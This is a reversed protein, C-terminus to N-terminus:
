CRANVVRAPSTQRSFVEVGIRVFRLYFFAKPDSVKELSELFARLDCNEKGRDGNEPAFVHRWHIVGCFAM